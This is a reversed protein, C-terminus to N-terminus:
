QAAALTEPGVHIRGSENAVKWPRCAGGAAEGAALGSQLADEHFGAGWYSGCFWTHRRGQVQWLWRQQAVAGADFLPHHYRFRALVTTEAPPRLPNLSVFFPRAEPLRQLRNMWYTVSVRADESQQPQCIANWSSWARRHKPMLAPDGHLVADNSQYRFAGLVRREDATADALLALAEDAHAAIVVRDFGHSEGPVTVIVGNKTRRVARVPVGTRFHAGSTERLREVYSRSGTTVTRWAPRGSIQLLGHNDFFRIMEAAPHARMDRVSASWIAAGMPLLHDRVFADSYGGRELYDGISQTQDVGKALLGPAERYFRLVDRMMRWFRPRVLNRRQALLGAIDRGSYEFAGGDASVAFSMDSPQTAVDLNQFLATLNPYAPENYVIFGTDVAVPGRPGPVIVTNSHGGLRPEREFVTVDHRQSLLWAAGLGAVGSGIVAIKLGRQTRPQTVPEM